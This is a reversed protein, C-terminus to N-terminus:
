LIEEKDDLESEIEQEEIERLYNKFSIRRKRAGTDIVENTKKKNKNQGHKKPELRESMM